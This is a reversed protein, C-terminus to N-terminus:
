PVSIACPLLKRWPLTTRSRDVVSRVLRLARLACSNVLWVVAHVFAHVAAHLAAYVAAHVAAHEVSHVVAHVVLMCLLM